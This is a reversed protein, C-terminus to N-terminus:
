AVSGTLTVTLSIYSHELAPSIGLKAFMYCEQDVFEM